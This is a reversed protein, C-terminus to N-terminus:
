PSITLDLTLTRSANGASCTARLQVPIGTDSGPSAAASSAASSGALRVLEGDWSWTYSGDEARERRGAARLDPGSVVAHTDTRVARASCIAEAPAHKVDLHQDSGSAVLRDLFSEHQGQGQNSTPTPTASGALPEPTGPTETASRSSTSSGCSILLAAASIGALMGIRSFWHHSM